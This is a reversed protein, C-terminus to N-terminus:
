PLIRLNLQQPWWDRNSAGKSPRGPPVPVQIRLCPKAEQGNIQAQRSRLRHGAALGRRPTALRTEERGGRLGHNRRQGQRDDQARGGQHGGKEGIPHGGFAPMTESSNRPQHPTDLVLSEKPSRTSIQKRTCWETGASEGVNLFGGFHILWGRQSPRINNGKM